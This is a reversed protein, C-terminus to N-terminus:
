GVLKRLQPVIWEQQVSCKYKDALRKIEENMLQSRVKELIYGLRNLGQRFNGGDGWYSDNSTHEFLAATATSLLKYKLLPNQTYKQIQAHEMVVEKFIIGDPVDPSEWNIRKEHNRARAINFADRATYADRIKKQTYISEFKQAQFYHETTFWIENDIEVKARYFNTFEYYPEEKNYFDVKDMGDARKKTSAELIHIIASAVYLSQSYVVSTAGARCFTECVYPNHLDPHIVIIDLTEKDCVERISKVFESVTHINDKVCTAFFLTLNKNNRWCDIACELTFEKAADIAHITQHRTEYGFTEIIHTFGHEAFEARDPLLRRYDVNFNIFLAVSHFPEKSFWPGAPSPQLNQSPFGPSSQLNQSPFGSPQLNQSPSNQSPANRPMQSNQSVVGAQPNQSVVGYSAQASKNQVISSTSTQGRIQQKRPTQSNESVIGAQPNQSVVGAQPNQSFDGHSAQASKKQEISSTSTRERIQQKRPKLSNQSVVGAQPNQSFGGHSAQASKNQEISSAQKDAKKRQRKTRKSMPSLTNQSEYGSGDDDDAGEHNSDEGRPIANVLPNNNHIVPGNNNVTPSPPTQQTHNAMNWEIKKETQPSSNESNTTATKNPPASTTMPISGFKQCLHENYSIDDGLTIEATQSPHNFRSSEPKNETKSIENEGGKNADPM